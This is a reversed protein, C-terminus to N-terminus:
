KNWSTIVTTLDVINLNFIMLIYIYIIKYGWNSFYKKLWVCLVVKQEVEIEVMIKVLVYIKEFKTRWM